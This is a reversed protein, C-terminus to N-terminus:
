PRVKRCEGTLPRQERSSILSWQHTRRTSGLNPDDPPPPPFRPGQLQGWCCSRSCILSLQGQLERSNKEQAMHAPAVPGLSGMRLSPPSGGGLNVGACVGVLPWLAGPQTERPCISTNVSVCWSACQAVMITTPDWGWCIWQEWYQRLDPKQSKRNQTKFGVKDM